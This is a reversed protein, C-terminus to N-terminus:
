KFKRDHTKIKRKRTTQKNQVFLDTGTTNDTPAVVNGMGITNLPTALEELIYDRLKKM